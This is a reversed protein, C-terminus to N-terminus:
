ELYPGFTSIYTCPCDCITGDYLITLGDLGSETCLPNRETIFHVGYNHLSHFYMHESFQSFGYKSYHVYNTLNLISDLKLGDNVTYSDPIAVVPCFFPRGCKCFEKIGYKISELDIFRVFDRLYEEYEYLKEPTDLNKFINEKAATPHVEFVIKLEQLPNESLDKCLTSINKRYVNWNGPHGMDNFPGPPGDISLQLHLTVQEKHNSEILAEDIAKLFDILNKIITWNTPILVFTLGDFFKFLDKISPLM